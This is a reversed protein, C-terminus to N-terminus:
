LGGYKIILERTSAYWKADPYPKTFSISTSTFDIYGSATETIKSWSVVACKSKTDQRRGEDYYIELKYTDPYYIVETVDEYVNKGASKGSSLIGFKERIKRIRERISV